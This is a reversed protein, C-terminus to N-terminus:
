GLLPLPSRPVNKRSLSPLKSAMPCAVYGVGIMGLAAAVAFTDSGLAVLKAAVPPAYAGTAEPPPGGSM